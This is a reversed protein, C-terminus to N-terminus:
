PGRADGELVDEATQLTDFRLRVIDPRYQVDFAEILEDDADFVAGTAQLLPSGAAVRLQASRATSCPVVEVTTEARMPMVGNDELYGYLSGNPLIATAVDAFRTAPLSSRLVASPQGDIV